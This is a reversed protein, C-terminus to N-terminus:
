AGSVLADNGGPGGAAVRRAGPLVQHGHWEGCRGGRRRQHLLTTTTTVGSTTQHAVRQGEGDYAETGTVGGATWRVLRREADYVDGTTAGADTRDGAADYAYSRVTVRAATSGLRALQGTRAWWRAIPSKREGRRALDLFYPILIRLAARQTEDAALYVREKEVAALVM